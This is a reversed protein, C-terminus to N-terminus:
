KGKWVPIRKELFGKIGEAADESTCLRAFAENMYEFAKHYELDAATYFARKANQLAVPSKGALLAAWKRGEKDLDGAPVVKNILGRELARSASILDGQFLLELCRKRGVSRSVPVVPGICNLGVNIATL